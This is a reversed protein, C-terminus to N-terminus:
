THHVPRTTPRAHHEMETQELSADDPIIALHSRYVMEGGLWGSLLLAGTGVAHLAVVAGLQGGSAAGTDLQLLMAVFYLIIVSLNLGMHAIAMSRANSRSAMTLYDGFGPLAAVLASIMAAIGTWFSMDYWQKNHDTGLYILDCVFAWIFLGIPLAVLAPHLPHGAISFKSKM